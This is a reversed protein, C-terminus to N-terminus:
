HKDRFTAAEAGLKSIRFEYNKRKFKFIKRGSVCLFIRRIRFIESIGVNEKPFCLPVDVPPPHESFIPVNEKPSCLPFVAPPPPHRPNQINEKPPCLPFVM